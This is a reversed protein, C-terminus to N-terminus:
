PTAVLYPTENLRAREIYRMITDTKVWSGDVMVKLHESKKTHM